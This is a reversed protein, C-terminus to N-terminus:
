FLSSIQTELWAVLRTCICRLQPSKLYYTKLITGGKPLYYISYILIFQDTAHVIDVSPHQIVFKPSHEAM